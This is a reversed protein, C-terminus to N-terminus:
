THYKRREVRVNTLCFSGPHVALNAKSVSRIAENINTLQSRTSEKTCASEKEKM